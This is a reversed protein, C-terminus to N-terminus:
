DGQGLEDKAERYNYIFQTSVIVVTRHKYVKAHLKSLGKAQRLTETRCWNCDQCRITHHSIKKKKSM